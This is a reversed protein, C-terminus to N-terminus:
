AASDVATRFPSRPIGKLDVERGGVMDLLRVLGRGVARGLGADTRDTKREFWFGLVRLTGAARDYRLDARARLEDGVLIPLTYYGWRRASAPKYVEWLYDFGFVLKSRRRASVVELPALFSATEDTTPGALKWHAPVSGSRLTELDERAEKVMWFAGRWGEVPVRQINGESEQERIWRDRNKVGVLKGHIQYLAGNIDSPNSLGRWHVHELGQHDVCEERPRARRLAPTLLRETLDYVKEGRRRDCIMVEGGMWLHFLALGSEKGARYNDLKHGLDLDRSAQPGDRSLTDHVAQLIEPRRRFHEASPSTTAWADMRWRWFTFQDIPRIGLTGGWEFAARDRYLHTLLHDPRYGVVRGLLALDHSRGVVDLPDEQLYAMTQLAPGLAEPGSWRPGPWLGQRGLLFRRATRPDIPAVATM